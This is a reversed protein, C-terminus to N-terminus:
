SCKICIFWALFTMLPVAILFHYKKERSFSSYVNATFIYIFGYLLFYMVSSIVESDCKIISFIFNILSTSSILLVIFFAAQLFYYEVRKMMAYRTPNIDM